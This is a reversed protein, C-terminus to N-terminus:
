GEGRREHAASCACVRATSKDEGGRIWGIEGCPSVGRESARMTAAASARRRTVQAEAEVFEGRM